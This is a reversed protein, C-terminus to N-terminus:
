VRQVPAARRSAAVRGARMRPAGPTRVSRAQGRDESVVAVADQAGIFPALAVYSLYDALAPLLQIRGGAVQCRVTHLIAGALGQVALESAPGAPADELILRAVALTTALNREVALPGAAFAGCALTRAYHEREGLLGTLGGIARRVGRPWDPCAALPEGAARLLRDELTALAALFCEDRDAFLEFFADISVDAEDAIQPATLGGPGDMGALRMVGDLIRESRDGERPHESARAMASAVRTARAGLRETLQEAAPTQFLMTWGLMEDAMVGARRDEADRLWASAAAHLGGVIGRIVPAPLPSARLGGRLMREGGAMAQCLRVVGAAGATQTEVLVLGAAKPQGAIAQAIEGFAARLRDETRGDSALYAEGALRAGCLALMDFTALFCDQRNEFQEYFSRRSVGALGIVQRVSTDRYGNAAVAEIMAGHIRARQHRVVEERSLRHPGHPLRKYLPALV